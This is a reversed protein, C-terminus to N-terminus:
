WWARVSLRRGFMLVLHQHMQLAWRTCTSGNTGPLFTFAACACANATRTVACVHGSAANYSIAEVQDRASLRLM